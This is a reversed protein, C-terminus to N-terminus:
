DFITEAERTFLINVSHINQYGTTVLKQLASEISTKRWDKGGITKVLKCPYQGPNPFITLPLPYTLLVKLFFAIVKSPISRCGESKAM